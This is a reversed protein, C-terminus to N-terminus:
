RCDADGRELAGSAELSRLNTSAAENDPDLQLVREWQQKAQTYCGRDALLLGKTGLLVLDNPCDFLARDVEVEAQDGEGLERIIQLRPGRWACGPQLALARDIEVLARDHEGLAAYVEALGARPQAMRPELTAAAQFRTRALNAFSDAEEDNPTRRAMRLYLSGLNNLLLGNGTHLKEAEELLTAADVLRGQRERIASLGLAAGLSSSDREAVGVYLDEARELDGQLRYVDALLLNAEPDVPSFSVAILCEGRAQDLLGQARYQRCRDVWPAILTRLDKTSDEGAEAIRQATEMATVSDGGSLAELLALYDARRSASRDLREKLEARDAPPVTSLDFLHAADGSATGLTALPLARRGARVRAASVVAIALRDRRIGEASIALLGDRDTVLRDLVDPPGFLAAQGLDEAVARRTWARFVAGADVPGAEARAALLLSSAGSPDLWGTVGPFVDSLDAAFAALEDGSLGDLPLRFVAIGHPALGASVRRIRRRSWASPGGPAWQAPLDVLIADFRVDGGRALADTSAFRVAPDAAVDQNWSGRSQVLWRHAPSAEQATVLGATARRASDLSGGHGLGLVLTSTPPDGRLLGPLHALFADSGRRERDQHVSRGRAWWTPPALDDLVHVSGRVGVRSSAERWTAVRNVHVLGGPDAYSAYPAAARAGTPPSPLAFCALAGGAGVAALARWGPHLDSLVLPLSALAIAAAATKLALDPGLLGPLLLWAGVGIVVGVGSRPGTPGATLGLAFCCLATLLAPAIVAGGILLPLEREMWWAAFTPARGMAELAGILVLPAVLGIALGVRPRRRALLWGVALGAAGGTAAEAFWGPGPGFLPGCTLLLLPLGGGALLGFRLGSRDQVDGPSAAAPPAASAGREAAPLIAAPLLLLLALATLPLLGAIPLLGNVCPLLGLAVATAAATPDPLRRRDIRRALLAVVTGTVLATLAPAVLWLGSRAALWSGVHDSATIWWPAGALAIAFAIPSGVRDSPTPPDGLGPRTAVGLGIAAGILVAVAGLNEAPLGHTAGLFACVVVPLAALQSFHSLNKIELSFHRV